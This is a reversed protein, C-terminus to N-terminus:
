LRQTHVKLKQQLPQIIGLPWDPRWQQQVGLVKLQHVVRLGAPQV